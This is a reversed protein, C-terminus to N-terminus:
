YFPFYTNITPSSRSNGKSTRYHVVLYMTYYKGNITATKTEDAEMESDKVEGNMIMPTGIVFNFPKKLGYNAKVDIHGELQVSKNNDKTNSENPINAQQQSDEIRPAAESYRIFNFKKKNTVKGNNIAKSKAQPSKGIQEEKKPDAFTKQQLISRKAVSNSRVRKILQLKNEEQQKTPIFNKVAVTNADVFKDEEALDQNPKTRTSTVFPDFIHTEGVATPTEVVAQSTQLGQALQVMDLLMSSPLKKIRKQQSSSNLPKKVKMHTSLNAQPVRDKKAALANGAKVTASTVARKNAVCKVTSVKLPAATRNPLAFEKKASNVKPMTEAANTKSTPLIRRARNTRTISLTPTESSSKQTAKTVATGLQSRGNTPVTRAKPRMAETKFEEKPRIASRVTHISPLAKRAAPFNIRKRDLTIAATKRPPTPAIAYISKRKM